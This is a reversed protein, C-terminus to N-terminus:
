QFVKFALAKVEFYTACIRNMSLGHECRMEEIGTGESKLLEM